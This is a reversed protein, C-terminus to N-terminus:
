LLHPLVLAVLSMAVVCAGVVIGGRRAATCRKLSRAARTEALDIPIYLRTGFRPTTFLKEAWGADASEATRHDGGINIGSESSEVARELAISPPTPLKGM